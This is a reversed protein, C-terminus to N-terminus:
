LRNKLSNLQECSDFSCRQIGQLFKLIWFFLLFGHSNGWTFAVAVGGATAVAVRGGDESSTPGRSTDGAKEPPLRSVEAGAAQELVSRMRM